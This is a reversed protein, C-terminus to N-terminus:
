NDEVVVEKIKVPVAKMKYWGNANMMEEPLHKLDIPHQKSSLLVFTQYPIKKFEKLAQVTKTATEFGKRTTADVEVLLVDTPKVSTFDFSELTLKM